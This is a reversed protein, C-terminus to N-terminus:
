LECPSWLSKMKQLYYFELDCFEKKGSGHIVRVQFPFQLANNYNSDGYREEKTRKVQLFLYLFYQANTGLMLGIKKGKLDTPNLIGKDKRAVIALYVDRDFAGAVAGNRDKM